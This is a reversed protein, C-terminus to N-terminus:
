RRLGKGRKGPTVQIRHKNNAAFVGHFRTLNGRPEPALAALRAIFDLPEFIVHTTRDRCPTKLLRAEAPEAVTSRRMPNVAPSYSRACHKMCGTLNSENVRSLSSRSVSRIGLHYLKRAQATLNSVVDRLSNRGSLQATAMSVFQAWRTMKRLKRGSHHQNALSEFEHRPVFKLLQAFVTNHHAM